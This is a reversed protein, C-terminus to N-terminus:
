TRSKQIFPKHSWMEELWARLYNLCVKQMIKIIWTTDCAQALYISEQGEAKDSWDGNLFVSKAVAHLKSIGWPDDPELYHSEM